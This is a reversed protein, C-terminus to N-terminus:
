NLPPMFEAHMIETNVEPTTEFTSYFIVHPLGTAPDIVVQTAGLDDRADTNPTIDRATEFTQGDASWTVYVDFFNNSNALQYSVIPRGSADVAIAPVMESADGTNTAHVESGFTGGATIKEYLIDSCAGSSGTCATFANWALHLTQGDPDVALVGNYDDRNAGGPVVMSTWSGGANTAYYLDEGGSPGCDAVVHVKGNADIAVCAQGCGGSPAPIVTAPM